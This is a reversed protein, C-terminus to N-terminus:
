IYLTASSKQVRWQVAVSINPNHGIFLLNDYNASAEHLIELYDECIGSYILNNREIKANPFLKEIPSSTELVRPANSTIIIDIKYDKLFETAKTAQNRGHSSLVRDFDKGIVNPAEAHRMLIITKMNNSKQQKCDTM